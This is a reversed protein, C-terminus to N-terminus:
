AQRRSISDVTSSPPAATERNRSRHEASPETRCPASATRRRPAPAIVAVRGAPGRTVTCPSGSVVSVRVDGALASRVASHFAGDTSPRVRVPAAAEALLTAFRAGDGSEAAAVLHPGPAVSVLRRQPDM